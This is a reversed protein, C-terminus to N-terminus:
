QEGAILGLELMKQLWQKRTFPCQALSLCDHPGRHLAEPIHNHPLNKKSGRRIGFQAILRDEHFILALDHASGKRPTVITAKLKKAIKKAHQKSIVNAM